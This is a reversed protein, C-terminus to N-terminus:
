ILNVIPCFKIDKHLASICMAQKTEAHCLVILHINYILHSMLFGTGPNGVMDSM